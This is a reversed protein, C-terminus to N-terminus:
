DGEMAVEAQVRMFYAGQNCYVKLQVMYPQGFIEAVTASEALTSIVMYKREKCEKSRETSRDLLYERFGPQDNMIVQAWPQSALTQFLSLLSCRLDPFPHTSVTM